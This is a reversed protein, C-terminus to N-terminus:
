PNGFRQRYEMSTLFAKVMEAQIFDGGFANLKTLWFQYGDDNLDPADTPNRRLYGYYEMLVFAPNFEANRVSNSDAVSRFAAVRGNTGGGGFAAIAADRESMTPVVDAKAFLADVYQAATQALPFAAIFPASTVIQTAYLQKNAELLVIDGPQGVIV